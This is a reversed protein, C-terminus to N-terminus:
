SCLYSIPSNIIYSLILYIMNHLTVFIIKMVIMRVLRMMDERSTAESPLIPPLYRVVIVGTNNVWSGVPYLDYAGFVIFPVVLLCITIFNLIFLFNTIRITM